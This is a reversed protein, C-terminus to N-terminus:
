ELAQAGDVVVVADRTLRLISNESLAGADPFAMGPAPGISPGNDDTHQILYAAEQETAMGHVLAGLGMVCVLSVGLFIPTWIM